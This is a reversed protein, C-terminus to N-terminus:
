RSEAELSLVRGSDEEPDLDHRWPSHLCQGDSGDQEYQPENSKQASPVHNQHKQRELQHQRTYRGVEDGKSVM